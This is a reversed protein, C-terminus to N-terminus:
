GKKQHCGCSVIKNNKVTAICCNTKKRNLFENDITGANWVIQRKKKSLGGQTKKVGKKKVRHKNEVNETEEESSDLDIINETTVISM